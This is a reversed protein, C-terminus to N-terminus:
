TNQAIRTSVPLKNSSHGLMIIGAICAAITFLNFVIHVPWSLQGLIGGCSCPVQYSYNMIIVIYTTFMTMLSYSIYYAITRTKNIFLMMALTIEILPVLISILNSIPNLMPSQSLEVEFKQLDLLKTSAAYSFLLALLFSIIEVVKERVM